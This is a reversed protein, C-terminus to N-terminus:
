GGADAQTSGMEPPGWIPIPIPPPVAISSDGSAGRRNFRWEAIRYRVTRRPSYAAFGQCRLAETKIVFENLLPIGKEILQTLRQREEPPTEEPSSRPLLAAFQIVTSDIDNIRRQMEFDNCASRGALFRQVTAKCAEEFGALAQNNVEAASGTGELVRRVAGLFAAARTNWEFCAGVLEVVNQRALLKKHERTQAGGVWLATGGATFAATTGWPWHSVNHVVHSWM